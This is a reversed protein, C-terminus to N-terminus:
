PPLRRPVRPKRHYPVTPSWSIQEERIIQGARIRLLRFINVWLLINNIINAGIHENYKFERFVIIM